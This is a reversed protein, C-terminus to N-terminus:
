PTSPLATGSKSKVLSIDASNLFGDANLDERFNASGVAQGSQSKTQSIDASNVFGDANTDGTLVGMQPGVIDGIAGTQDKAALLAVSVYQQNNVNILNVTYQNPNPGVASSNVSGFGSAMGAGGVSVLNHAFTFVMTYAGNAGGSRCEVGRTGTLPLIIDFTGASGHTFRSVVPNVSALQPPNVSAVHIVVQAANVSVHGATDHVTLRAPYDGPTSYTHSFLASSQTVPTSSDGFDLTYSNITGCAGFPENSASGDFSVSLPANGTLPNATLVALPIATNCGAVNGIRTYTPCSPCGTDPFDGTTQVVELFVGALLITSGRVHKLQTGAASGDWNFATGIAPAGPAAFVLPTSFNLKIKITGDKSFSGSPVTGDSLNACHFVETGGASQEFCQMSEVFGGGTRPDRRGYSFDPSATTANNSAFTDMAVFIEHDVNDPTTVTFNFKWEANPPLAPQGTNSPDLTKVKMVFTVSNDTCSTFPEGMNINEITLEGQSPDTTINGPIGAGAVHLYPSVCASVNTVNSINVERCFGGEVTANNITNLATVRYFYNTSSDATQDLYKNTTNGSVSALFTETGSSTGRYINYGTIPSGGNDPELWSVLVGSPPGAVRVASLVQPADPQHPEPPNDFASFLRRGGSQRAITGHAATSQSTFTNDCNVCGDAYALLGRGQSDVTFDNFDLLNRAHACGTGKLCVQGTQVPDIPTADILIWNHGGDYTHAIYLHWVGHFSGDDSFAAIGPTTTGIFGFAARNDDGAVVVPFVANQVGLISGVDIDDQWTAGEDPSHAAHAHGDASVWGLYITNPMQNAPKGVNNQGIGISPDQDGTSGPVSIQNWTIGNNTSVAAGAVGSGSFCASNPVYVTGQPSVKVHGHIGGLCVTPNYIPVAPAFTQGGDDSRSCEAETLSQSCYYIANQYVPGVPSLPSHYPGGGLTEHDPGQGPGGNGGPLYSNGDNDSISGVSDGAGLDIFFHRGPTHPPPYAIGLQGASYHDTFGIVDLGAPTTQVSINEWLNVAPSSCDDFNARWNTVSNVAAATTYLAVGGTNVLDHKLSPVNPNWDTGISPEGGNAQSAGAPYNMYRPPAGPGQNVPNPIDILKVLVSLNGAGVSALIFIHYVTGDAPIPLILASPNATSSNQAIVAGGVDEIYIDFDNQVPTWTGEIFIEKTTAVSNASVTLM